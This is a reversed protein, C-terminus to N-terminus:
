RMTKRGSRPKRIAPRPPREIPAAADSYTVDPRSTIEATRDQTAKKETAMPSPSAKVTGTSRKMWDPLRSTSQAKRTSVSVTTMSTTTLVTEDSTCM